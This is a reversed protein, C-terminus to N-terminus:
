EGERGREAHGYEQKNTWSGYQYTDLIAQAFGRGGWFGLVLLCFGLWRM